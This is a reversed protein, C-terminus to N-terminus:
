RQETNSQTETIYLDLIEPPLLMEETVYGRRQSRLNEVRLQNEFARMYQERDTFTQNTGGNRTLEYTM